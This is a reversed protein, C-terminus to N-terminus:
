PQWKYQASNLSLPAAIVGADHYYQYIKQLDTDSVQSTKLYLSDPYRSAIAGLKPDVYIAMLKKAYGQDSNIVDIAEDLAQAIKVATEPNKEAWDKRINFGGFYFPEYIYKPVLAGPVLLKTGTRALTSTAGPDNTFLAQISGSLLAEPELAPPVQQIVVTNADVGNKALITRIWVEYARTPLIGIRKNALDAISNIGSDNRVILMSIPHNQDEMLATLFLLDVKSRAMASFTIPLACYGGVDIGGSVLADMMPQATDYKTLQINLGRKKFLGRDQAVFVPLSIRLAAYGIRVDSSNAVQEQERGHCAFLTLLPLTLITFLLRSSRLM